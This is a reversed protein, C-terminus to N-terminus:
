SFFILGFFQYEIVVSFLFEIYWIKVCLVQGELYKIVDIYWDVDWLLFYFSGNIDFVM